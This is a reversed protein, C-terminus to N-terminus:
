GETISHTDVTTRAVGTDPKYVGQTERLSSWQEELLVIALRIDLM